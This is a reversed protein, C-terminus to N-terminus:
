RKVGLVEPPLGVSAAYGSLISRRLEHVTVM